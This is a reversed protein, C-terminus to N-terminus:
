KRSEEIQKCVSGLIACIVDAGRVLHEEDIWGPVHTFVVKIDSDRKWRTALSEYYLFGCGYSGPELHAEISVKYKEGMIQPIGKDCGANILSLSDSVARDVDITPGLGLPAADWVGKLPGEIDKVSKGLDDPALYYGEKEEPEGLWASTFLANFAVREISYHDWDAATGLHYILDVEEEYEDWLEQIFSRM